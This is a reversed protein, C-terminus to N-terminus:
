RASTWRPLAVLFPTIRSVQRAQPHRSRASSLTDLAEPLKFSIVALPAGMAAESGSDRRAERQRSVGRREM